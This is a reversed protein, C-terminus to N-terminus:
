EKLVITPFNEDNMLRQILSKLGTHNAYLRAEAEQILILGHDTNGVSSVNITDPVKWSSQQQVMQYGTSNYGVKMHNVTWPKVVDHCVQDYVPSPINTRWKCCHIHILNCGDDYYKFTLICPYGDVFDITPLLKWDPNQLWM